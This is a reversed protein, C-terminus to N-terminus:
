NIDLGIYNVKFRNLHNSKIDLDLKKSKLDLEILQIHIPYKNPNKFGIL